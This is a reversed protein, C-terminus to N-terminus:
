LLYFAEMPIIIFHLWESQPYTNFYKATYKHSLSILIHKTATSTYDLANVSLNVAATGNTNSEQSMDFHLLLECSRHLFLYIHITM